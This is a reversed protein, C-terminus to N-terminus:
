ATELEIRRRRLPRVLAVREAGDDTIVSAAAERGRVPREDVHSRRSSRTLTAVSSQSRGTELLSLM